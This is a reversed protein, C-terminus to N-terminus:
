DDGIGAYFLKEKLAVIAQEHEAAQKQLEEQESKLKEVHGILDILIDCIKSLEDCLAITRDHTTM